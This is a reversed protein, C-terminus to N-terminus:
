RKDIKAEFKRALVSELIQYENPTLQFDSAKIVESKFIKVLLKYLTLFITPNYDQAFLEDLCAVKDVKSYMKFSPQSRLYDMFRKQDRDEFYLCKYLKTTIPNERSAFKNSLEGIGKNFKPVIFLANDDAFSNGPANNIPWREEQPEFNSESLDLLDAVQNIFEREQSNLASLGTPNRIHEFIVESSIREKHQKYRKEDILMPNLPQRIPEFGMRSSFSNNASSNNSHLSSNISKFQPRNFM